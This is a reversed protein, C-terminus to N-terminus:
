KINIIQQIFHHISNSNSHSVLSPFPHSATTSHTTLHHLLSHLYPDSCEDSIFFIFPPCPPPFPLKNSSFCLTADASFLTPSLSVCCIPISSSSLVSCPKVGSPIGGNTDHMSSVSESCFLAMLFSHMLSIAVSAM